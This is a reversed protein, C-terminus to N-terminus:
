PGRRSLRRAGSRRPPAGHAHRHARARCPGQGQGQRPVHPRRGAGAHEGGLGATVRLHGPRCQLIDALRRRVAGPRAACAPPRGDPSRRHRRRGPRARRVRRRGPTGRHGRVRVTTRLVHSVHLLVHDGATHGFRDNIDKFGDIDFYLLSLSEGSRRGHALDREAVERFGRANAAGTQPDTRAEAERENQMRRMAALTFLIMAYLVFRAAAAALAPGPATGQTAMALPASIIATVAAAALGSWRSHSLWAVAATPILFFDILPVSRGATLKFATLCALAAMGLAFIVVDPLRRLRQDLAMFPSSMPVTDARPLVNQLTITGGTAWRGSRPTHKAVGRARRRGGARPEVAAPARLLIPAM